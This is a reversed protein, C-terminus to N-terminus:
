KLYIQKKPITVFFTTGKKSKFSIKGRFDKEVINKTMSLGIGMGKGNIHNKTTFFPQFVKKKYKDPIGIGNDTLIFIINEKDEKLEIKITREVNKIEDYADIANGILNLAVQNWKTEEGFIKGESKAKLNINVNTQKAKYSLIDIVQKTNEKLSFMKREKKKVLQKRVAAIFSEMNKAAILAKDFYKEAKIINKNGNQENKAKEMNLSVAGLPNLLDHFISSSLRGFEAFRYLQSIKEAEAERLEKTRNVVTTELNNREKKLMEESKKARALSKKIERNSLWSVVAIASFIILTMITDSKEWPENRWYNNVLIIEADQLNGILIMLIGIIFTLFFALQSSLLIGTMVICLAYLLLSANVDVGWILSMYASLSFFLFIFIGASIRYFGYRSLLYLSTVVLLALFLFLIPLASQQHSHPRYIAAFINVLIATSFLIFVSLLLVNLIFEKRGKDENPPKNVLLRNLFIMKFFFVVRM